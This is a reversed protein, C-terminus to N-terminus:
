SGYWPVGVSMAPTRIIVPIGARYARNMCDITGRSNVTPFALCVDAGTAVMQANRIPGAARGNAHWDAPYEEILWGLDEAIRKALYDAGFAERRERDWSRQGGHVLTMEGWPGAQNEQAVMEQRIADSDRWVRSGTVLVRM